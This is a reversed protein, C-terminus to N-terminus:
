HTSKSRLIGFFLTIEPILSRIDVEPSHRICSPVYRTSFYFLFSSTILFLFVPFIGALIVSGCISLRTLKKADQFKASTLTMEYDM